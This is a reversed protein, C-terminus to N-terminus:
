SAQPEKYEWIFGKYTKARGNCCAAINSHGFGFQREAEQMSPWEKIVEGDKSCQLVPKSCKTNYRGRIKAAQKAVQEPPKKRGRQKEGWRQKATGYNANYKRTCWELNDVCNNLKNEDKHNVEPLNDPNPIFAMAVLRHVSFLKNTGDKSFLRVRLYRKDVPKLVKEVGTRHYNLSKVRGLSSVMYLGEYGPIMKWIEKKM